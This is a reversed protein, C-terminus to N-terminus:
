GSVGYTGFLPDPDHYYTEAPMVCEYSNLIVGSTDTSFQSLYEVALDFFPVGTKVGKSIAGAMKSYSYSGIRESSFPSFMADRDELSTGIQWAMDLIGRDMVRRELTNPAFDDHIRTAIEMMDTAAQLHMNIFPLDDVDFEEERQFEALDNASPPTLPM